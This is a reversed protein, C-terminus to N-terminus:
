DGAGRRVLEGLNVPFSELEIFHDTILIAGQYAWLKISATYFVHADDKDRFVADLLGKELNDKDPKGQHPQGVHERKKKESWSRPMPLLFVFMAFPAPIEVKKWGIEDRFARYAQVANSPDWADRRSQRPAAVPVVDLIRM